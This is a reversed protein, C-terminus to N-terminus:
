LLICESSLIKIFVTPIYNKGSYQCYFNIPLFQFLFVDAVKQLLHSCSTWNFASWSTTPRPPKSSCIVKCCDHSHSMRHSAAIVTVIDDCWRTLVDYCDSLFHVRENAM